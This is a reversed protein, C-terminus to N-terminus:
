MYIPTSTISTINHTWRIAVVRDCINRNGVLVHTTQPHNQCFAIVSTARLQSAHYLLVFTVLDDCM